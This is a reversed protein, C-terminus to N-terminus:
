QLIKLLCDPFGRKQFIVLFNYVKLYLLSFRRTLDKIKMKLSNSLLLFIRLNGLKIPKNTEVSNVSKRVDQFRNSM